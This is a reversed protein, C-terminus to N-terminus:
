PTLAAMKTTEIANASRHRRTVALPQRDSDGTQLDTRPHM